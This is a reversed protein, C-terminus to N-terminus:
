VAGLRRPLSGGNTRTAHAVNLAVVSLTRLWRAGDSDSASNRNALRLHNRAAYYLRPPTQPGISRAGEHYVVASGDLVTAFGARRAKLCFDIEEFSFFFEEDLLGIADFVERRVLMVCGSVADVPVSGVSERDRLETGVGRHRMRGTQPAYSMGM